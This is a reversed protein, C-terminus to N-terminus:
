EKWDYIQPNQGGKKAVVSIKRRVKGSWGEAKIEWFTDRPGILGGLANFSAKDMGLFPQAQELKDFPPDDITGDIQDAGRRWQLFRDIGIDGIGPLLRLIHADAATLDIPGASFITLDDKWGPQSTLPESGAVQELEEV